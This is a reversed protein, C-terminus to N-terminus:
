GGIEEFTVTGEFTISDTYSKTNYIALKDTPSIIFMEEPIPQYLWGAQVNFADAFVITKTVGETGPGRCTVGTTANSFHPQPTILTGAGDAGTYRAILITSMEAAADGQETTQGIRCSLLRVATDAVGIIEFFDGAGTVAIGTFPCSFVVGM